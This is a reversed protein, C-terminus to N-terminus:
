SMSMVVALKTQGKGPNVNGTAAEVIVEVTVDGVIDDVFTDIRVVTGDVETGVVVACNALVVVAGDVETGVVVACNALVVVAVSGVVVTVVFADTLVDSDDIGTLMVVAVDTLADALWVSRRIVGVTFCLVPSCGVIVDGLVYAEPLLECNAPTSVV